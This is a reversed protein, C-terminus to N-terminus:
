KCLVQGILCCFFSLPLVRYMLIFACAEIHTFCVCWSLLSCLYCVNTCPSVTDPPLEFSVFFLSSSLASFHHLSCFLQAYLDRNRHSNPECLESIKSRKFINLHLFNCYILSYIFHSQLQPGIIGYLYVKQLVFYYNNSFNPLVFNSLLGQAYPANQFITWSCTVGSRYM